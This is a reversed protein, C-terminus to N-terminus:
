NAFAEALYGYRGVYDGLGHVWHVIGKCDGIAPWRYNAIKVESKSNYAPKRFDIPNIQPFQYKSYTFGVYKRSAIIDEQSLPIGNEDFM